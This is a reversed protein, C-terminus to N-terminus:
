RDGKNKLYEAYERPSMNFLNPAEDEEININRVLNNMSVGLGAGVAIGALLTGFGRKGKKM